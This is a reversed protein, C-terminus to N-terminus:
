GEEPLILRYSGQEENGNFVNLFQKYGGLHDTNVTRKEGPALEVGAGNYASGAASATYFVLPVTGNNELEFVQGPEFDHVINVVQMANVFGSFELDDDDPYAGRLTVLDFFHAIHSPNNRYIHMLSGTVAYMAQACAIRQLELEASRTSVLGELGKQTRRAELLSNYFDTIDTKVDALAADAGICEILVALAGIRSEIEGSQFPRRLVPLLAKYEDTGRKYVVQIRVDFEAIKDSSLENLLRYVRSTAGRYAAKRSKWSTYAATYQQRQPAFFVHVPLIDPNDQQGSLKAATNASIILMKKFSGKTGNDFPNETFSWVPTSM